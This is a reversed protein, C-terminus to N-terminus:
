KKQDAASLEELRRKAIDLQDQLASIEQQLYEKESEHTLETRGAPSLPEWEQGFRMWGPIWSTRFVHRWGHGPTHRVRSGRGASGGAGAGGCYGAGRGSMRAWEAFGESAPGAM